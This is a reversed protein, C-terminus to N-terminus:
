ERKLTYTRGNKCAFVDIENESIIKFSYMKLWQKNDELYYALNNIEFHGDGSGVWPIDYNSSLGGDSTVRMKFYHGDGRWTGVLFYPFYFDSLIVQRAPAFDWLEMLSKYQDLRSDNSMMTHYIRLYLSSDRYEEIQSFLAGTNYIYEFGDTLNSQFLNQGYLYIESKVKELM